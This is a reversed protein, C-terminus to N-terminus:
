LNKKRCMRVWVGGMDGGKNPKRRLGWGGVGTPHPQSTNLWLSDTHHVPVPWILNSQLQNLRILNHYDIENMFNPVIYRKPWIYLSLSYSNQCFLFSNENIKILAQEFYSSQLYTYSSSTRWFFGNFFSQRTIWSWYMSYRRYGECTTWFILYKSYISYFLIGSNLLFEELRLAWRFNLM